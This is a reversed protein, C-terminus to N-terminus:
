SGDRSGLFVGLFSPFAPYKVKIGLKKFLKAWPYKKPDKPLFDYKPGGGHTWADPIMGYSDQLTEV